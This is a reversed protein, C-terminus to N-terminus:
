VEKMKLYYYYNSFPIPRYTNEKKDGMEFHILDNLYAQYLIDDIEEPQFGFRELKEIVKYIPVLGDLDISNKLIDKYVEKLIAEETEKKSKM